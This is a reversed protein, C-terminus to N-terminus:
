AAATAVAIRPPGHALDARGLGTSKGVDRLPVVLGVHGDYAEATGSGARRDFGGVGPCFHSEELHGAGASARRRERAGLDVHAAAAACPNLPGTAVFVGGLVHEVVQHGGLAVEGVLRLDPEVAVLAEGVEVPEDGHAGLVLVALVLLARDHREGVVAQEVGPVLLGPGESVDGPGAGAAVVELHVAVVAARHQHSDQGLLDLPAADSDLVVCPSQPQDDVFGTLHLAEDNAHVVLFSVHSGALTDQERGAAKRHVALHELVVRGHEGLGIDRHAVRAVHAGADQHALADAASQDVHVLAEDGQGEVRGRREGEADEHVGLSLAEDVLVDIVCAEGVVRDLLEALPDVQDDVVVVVVMGRVQVRLDGAGALRDLLHRLLDAERRVVEGM